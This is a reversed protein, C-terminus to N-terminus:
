NPKGNMSGMGSGSMEGEPKYEGNGYMDGNDGYMGGQPSRRKRYGDMEGEGEGEPENGYPKNGYGDGKMDSDYEDKNMSKERVDCMDEAFEHMKEQNMCKAHCMNVSEVTREMWSMEEKMMMGSGSM